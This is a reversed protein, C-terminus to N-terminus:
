ACFYLEVDLVRSAHAPTAMRLFYLEVDVRPAFSNAAMTAFILAERVHGLPGALLQCEVPEFWAKGSRKVRWYSIGLFIPSRCYAM